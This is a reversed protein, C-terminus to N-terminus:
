RATTTTAPATTSTSASTSPAGAPTTTTTASPDVCDPVAVTEQLPPKSADPGRAVLQVQNPGATRCHLEFTVQGAASTAAQGTGRLTWSGPNALTVVFGSTPTSRVVGDPGVTRVAVQVVLNVPQGVLPPDPAVGVALAATDFREVTLDVTREEGETLFFVQAETQALSPPLFARIRFRGGPVNPLDWHGDPGAVVDFHQLDGGDLAREVRVMAGPVFGDPANVGGSLHATGTTRPQPRTTTGGVAQLQVDALNATTTSTAGSPPGSSASGGPAHLNPVDASRWGRVLFSSFLLVALALPILVGLQRANLRHARIV